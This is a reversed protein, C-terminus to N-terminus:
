TAYKIRRRCTKATKYNCSPHRAQAQCLVTPATNPIPCKTYVKPTLSPHVHISKIDTNIQGQDSMTTQRAFSVLPNLCSFFVLASSM